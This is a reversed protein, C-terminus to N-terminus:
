GAFDATVVTANQYGAFAGVAASLGIRRFGSRLLNARHAPSGLWMRVIAAPSSYHGAGWALNEGVLRGRVGFRRLRAATNGHAFSQRALMARPHSRAAQALRGDGRLAPLGHASRVRNVEELLARETASAALATSGAPAALVLALLGIIAAALTPRMPPSPAVRGFASEAASLLTRDQRACAAYVACLPAYSLRTLAGRKPRPPRRDSDPRGSEDRSFRSADM